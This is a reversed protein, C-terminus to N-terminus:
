NNIVDQEYFLLLIIRIDLIKIPNESVGSPFSYPMFYLVLSISCTASNPSYVYMQYIGISVALRRMVFLVCRLVRVVKVFKLVSIFYM